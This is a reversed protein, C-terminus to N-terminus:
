KFFEKVKGAVYSIQEDNLEPFMPLSLGTEALDETVPFDGTKYGLSSFCEQKHLPVPYHLGTSIGQEGLYKQLNDRTESKSNQNESKVRIVYLHYVHRAWSMEKPLIVRDFDGLLQGYKEAVRRRGETWEPLYNLKVGLM